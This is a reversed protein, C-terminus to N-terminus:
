STAASYIESCDGPQLLQGATGAGRAAAVPQVVGHGDDIQHILVTRQSSLLISVVITLYLDIGVLGNLTTM